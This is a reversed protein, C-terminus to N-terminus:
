IVLEAGELSDRPVSFPMAWVRDAAPRLTPGKMEPPSKVRVFWTRGLPSAIAQPTKAPIARTPHSPVNSIRPFPSSLASQCPSSSPPSSSLSSSAASLEARHGTIEHGRHHLNYLLVSPFSIVPRYVVLRSLSVISSLHHARRTSSVASRTQHRNGKERQTYRAGHPWRYQIRNANDCTKKERDKNLTQRIIM